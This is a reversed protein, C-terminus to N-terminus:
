WQKPRVNEQNRVNQPLAPALSLEPAALLNGHTNEFLLQIGPMGSLKSFLSYPAEVILGTSETEYVADVM